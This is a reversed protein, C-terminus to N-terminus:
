WEVIEVLFFYSLSRFTFTTLYPLPLPLMSAPSLDHHYLCSVKLPLARGRSALTHQYLCSPTSAPLQAAGAPLLLAACTSNSFIAGSTLIEEHCRHAFWFWLRLINTIFPLFILQLQILRSQCSTALQHQCQRPLRGRVGSILASLHSPRVINQSSVSISLSIRIHLGDAM